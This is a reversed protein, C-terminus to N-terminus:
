TMPHTFAGRRLAGTTGAATVVLLQSAVAACAGAVLLWIAPVDRIALVAAGAACAAALALFGAGVVADQRWTSAFQTIHVDATVVLAAVALTRRLSRHTIDARM